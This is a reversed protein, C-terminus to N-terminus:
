ARQRALKGEENLKEIKAKTREYLNRPLASTMMFEKRRERDEEEEKLKELRELM